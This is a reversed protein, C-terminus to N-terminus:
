RGKSPEKRKSMLSVAENRFVHSSGTALSTALSTAHVVERWQLKGLEGGANNSPEKSAGGLIM